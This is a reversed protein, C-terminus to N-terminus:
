KPQGKSEADLADLAKHLNSLSLEDVCQCDETIEKAYKEAVHAIRELVQIRAHLDAAESKYKFADMEFNAAKEQEAEVISLLEGAYGLLTLNSMNEIIGAQYQELMTRIEVIRNEKDDM